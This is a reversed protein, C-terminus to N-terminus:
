FWHTIINPDESLQRNRNRPNIFISKLKSYRALFRSPWNLGILQTEGKARLLEDAM